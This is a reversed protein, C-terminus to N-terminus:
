IIDWFVWGWLRLRVFIEYSHSTLIYLYQTTPLRPCVVCLIFNKERRQKLVMAIAVGRPLLCDWGWPISTEPKWGFTSKLWTLAFLMENANMLAVSPVLLHDCSYTSVYPLMERKAKLLSVNLLWYVPAVLAPIMRPAYWKACGSLEEPAACALKKMSLPPIDTM